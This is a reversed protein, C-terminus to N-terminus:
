QMGIVNWDTKFISGIKEPSSNVDTSWFATKQINFSTWRSQKGEASITQRYYTYKFGFFIYLGFFRFLTSPM